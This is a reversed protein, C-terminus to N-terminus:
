KLGKKAWLFGKHPSTEKSPVLPFFPARLGEVKRKETSSASSTSTCPEAKCRRERHSAEPRESSRHPKVSLTCACIPMTLPLAEYRYVLRSEGIEHPAATESALVHNHGVCGDWRSAQAAPLWRM